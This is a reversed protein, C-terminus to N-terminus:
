KVPPVGAAVSPTQVPPVPASPCAEPAGGSLAAPAAALARARVIFRQPAAGRFDFPYCTVLTLIRDPSPALVSVDAPSVVWTRDVLYRFAGHPSTITIEDGVRINRLGYFDTTRHAALAMNGSQHPLTTEPFHGVARRITRDDVGQLIVSSVGVRPIEIRGLSPDAATVPPLAPVEQEPIDAVRAAPSQARVAVPVLFALLAGAVAPSHSAVGRSRVVGM